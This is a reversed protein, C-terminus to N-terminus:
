VLVGLRKMERSIANAVDKNTMNAGNVNITISPSSVSRDVTKSNKVENKIIKDTKGAPYIKDGRALQIMEEGRENIQTLGGSFYETGTANKKKGGIGLASKVNGVASGVMNSIKGPISALADVASQVAGKVAAFADKASNVAGVVTEFAQKVIGGVIGAIEVLKPIVPDAIFEALEQLKPVVNDGIWTAFEILKPIINEGIWTGFEILAPVATDMIWTGFEQLAPVVNAQISDWITQFAPIVNAQIFDIVSQITPMINAGIWDLASQLVPIVNASIWDVASQVAPVVNASIFDAVSQLAPAVYTSIIDALIGLGNVAGNIVTDLVDGGLDSGSEFIKGFSDKLSDFVKGMPEGLKEFKDGIPKFKEGLYQMGSKFKDVVGSGLNKLVDGVKQAVPVLGNLAKNVALLAPTMAGFIGGEDGEQGGLLGAGIKSLASQFNMKAAGWTKNMEEASNGAASSAAAIADEASIQGKSIMERATATDVGKMEAIKALMPLGRDSLQMLEDGQLKGTTKIKNMIAGIENFDSGTAAAINSINKLYPGVDKQGVGAAIASSATTMADGFGYSTGTVADMAAKSISKIANDDFKRSGDANTQGRLRAKASQINELRSMGAGLTTDVGSKLAGIGTTIAGTILNGKVISGLMSGGGPNAGMMPMPSHSRGGFPNMKSFFGGMKSFGTKIGSFMTNMGGKFAKKIPNEMEINVKHRKGTLQKLEKSIERAEKKAKYFGSVDSSFKSFKNFGKDLKNNFANSVSNVSSKMKGFQNKIHDLRGTKATIEFNIPKGTMKKLDNNLSYIKSRVERSGVEKISVKHERGFAGKMASKIKNSSSKVKNFASDMASGMKSAAAQNAKMADSMANTSSAIEKAKSSYKDDLVITSKIVAM